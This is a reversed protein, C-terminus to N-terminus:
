AKNLRGHLDTPKLVQYVITYLLNDCGGSQLQDRARTPGYLM